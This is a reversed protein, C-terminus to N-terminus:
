SGGFSKAHRPYLTRPDARPGTWDLAPRRRPADEWVPGESRGGGYQTFLTRQALRPLWEARLSFRDHDKHTDSM